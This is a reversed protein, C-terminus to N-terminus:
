GPLCWAGSGSCQHYRDIRYLECFFNFITRHFFVSKRILLLCLCGCSVECNQSYEKLPLIWIRIEIRSPMWYRIRSVSPVPLTWLFTLFQTTFFASKRILFLCGNSVKCNNEECPPDLDPDRDPFADLVPVTCLFPQFNQPSISAINVDFCSFVVGTM